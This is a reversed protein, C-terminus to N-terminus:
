AVSGANVVPVELWFPQLLQALVQQREAQIQLAHLSILQPVPFLARMELVFGLERDVVRALRVFTDVDEAPM